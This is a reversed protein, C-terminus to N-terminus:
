VPLFHKKMCAIEYSVPIDDRNISFNCVMWTRGVINDPQPANILTCLHSAFLTERQTSPWVRKHLQHYIFTDEALMEVQKVTELTGPYRLNSVNLICCCFLVKGNWDLKKM